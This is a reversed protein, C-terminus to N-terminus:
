SARARTSRRRSTACTARPTRRRPHPGRPLVGGRDRLRVRRPDARDARALLAPRGGDRDVGDPGAAPRRAAGARQRHRRRAHPGLMQACSTWTPAWAPSTRWRRWATTASSTARRHRDDQAEADHQRGRRLHGLRLDAGAAVARRARARPQARRRGDEAPLVRVLLLARRRRGPARRDAHGRLRRDTRRRPRPDRARRRRGRAGLARARGRAGSAARAAGPARPLLADEDAALRAEVARVRRRLRGPLLDYATTEGVSACRRSSRALRRGVLARNADIHGALDTFPRAHGALTLRVDLRAVIDLSALFEGVPDPTWGHDFYLAPAASCTTAPSWCGGSPSTSCSTRPRTARADRVGDLRRPRHGRHRRGRPRPRARAARQLRVARGPAVRGLAAAAGGPRREPAGDRDAARARGRSGGSRRARARPAPAAVARLGGAGAAHRGARCPRSARPHVVLLRVDGPALGVQDM